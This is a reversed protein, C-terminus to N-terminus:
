FVSLNQTLFHSNLCLHTHTNTHTHILSLYFRVLKFKLDSKYITCRIFELYIRQFFFYWKSYLFFIFSHTWSLENSKVNKEFKLGSKQTEEMRFLRRFKSNNMNVPQALSATKKERDLCIFWSVISTQLLNKQFPCSKKNYIWPVSPM